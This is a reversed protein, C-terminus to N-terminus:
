TIIYEHYSLIMLRLLYEEMSGKRDIRTRTHKWHAISCIKVSHVMKGLFEIFLPLWKKWKLILKQIVCNQKAYCVYIYISLKFREYFSHPLILNLSMETDKCLHNAIIFPKTNFCDSSYNSTTYKHKRPLYFM